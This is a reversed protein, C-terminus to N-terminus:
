TNSVVITDLFAWCFPGKRPVGCTRGQLSQHLERSCLGGSLAKKNPTRLRSKNMENYDFACGDFGFHSGFDFERVQTQNRQRRPAVTHRVCM